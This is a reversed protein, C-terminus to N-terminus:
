LGVLALIARFIDIIQLYQLIQSIFAVIEDFVTM